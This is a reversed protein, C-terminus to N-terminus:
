QNHNFALISHVEHKVKRISFDVHIITEKEMLYNNWKKVVEVLAFIEKDYTPYNL